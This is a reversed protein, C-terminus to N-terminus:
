RTRPTPTPTPKPTPTPTPTSAPTPTPTPKPTPTPTPIPRSRPTPTPTAKPTATPSPTPTPTPPPASGLDYGIVDLNIGEPSTATVDSFQGPCGFANQVYPNGQPCSFSLWDGFDGNVDQNFDVIDTSGSNISFYRLGGSSLNRTGSSSWSFLDQPRLDSSGSGLYSGLGLVEDIEHETARLADFNNAGTPRTLQFPQGSNLTVIGDYPGGSGVNGDAFMAPPTDLGIARGGASSPLINASLPTAPLSANAAADNATKADAKLASVYDSWPVPYFVYFSKALIGGGLSSGDPGTTSYRFLISATMPDSFLSEYRAIAQNIMSEIAASNPNGTISSDFTAHIILGSGSMTTAAMVNSDASIGSSGYARVRYYYTTGPKLGSVVRGTVNGVDLDQYGNLFSTFSSNTSVDLRYGMAGDVGSWIAVFSTHTPAMSPRGIEGQAADAASGQFDTTGSVLAGNRTSHKGARAQLVSSMGPNQEAAQAVGSADPYVEFAVFVLFAAIASLTLGVVRGLSSFGSRSPAM